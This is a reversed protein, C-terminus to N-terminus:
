IIKKIIKKQRELTEIKLRREDQSIKEFLQFSGSVERIGLNTLELTSDLRELLSKDHSIILLGGPYLDVIELLLSRGKQDLNNTPEDLILFTKELSLAKAMRLRLWEGGSLTSVLGDLPLSGLLDRAFLSNTSPDDWVDILFDSIRGPPRAEFQELHTPKVGIM